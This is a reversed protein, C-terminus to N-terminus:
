GLRVPWAGQTKKPDFDGRTYLELAAFIQPRFLEPRRCDQSLTLLANLTNYNGQNVGFDTEFAWFALLVGPPIGYERSLRDFTTAYKTANKQAHVLRHDSILAKSFSIFDKQFVGQRRDAKIVSPEQATGDLFRQVWPRAYGKAVAEREIDKIFPAWDTGCTASALTAYCLLVCSLFLRHM